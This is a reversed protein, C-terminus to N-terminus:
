NNFDFKINQIFNLLIKFIFILDFLVLSNNLIKPYILNFLLPLDDILNKIDLELEQDAM